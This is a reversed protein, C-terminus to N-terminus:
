HRCSPPGRCDLRDIHRRSVPPPALLSLFAVFLGALVLLPLVAAHLLPANLLAHLSCNSEDHRPADSPAPASSNGHGARAQFAAADAAAHAVDHAHRFWGSGLGAFCILLVISALRKL